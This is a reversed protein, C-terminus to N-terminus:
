PSDTLGHLCAAQRSLLFKEDDCHYHLTLRVRDYDRQATQLGAVITIPSQTLRGEPHQRIWGTEERTLSLSISLMDAEWATYFGRRREQWQLYWDWVGPRACYESVTLATIDGIGREDLNGTLKIPPMTGAGITM